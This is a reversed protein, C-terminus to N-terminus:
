YRVDSTGVELGLYSQGEEMPLPYMAVHRHYWRSLRPALVFVESTFDLQVM